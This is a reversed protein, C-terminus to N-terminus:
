QLAAQSGESIYNLPAVRCIIYFVRSLPIFSRREIRM